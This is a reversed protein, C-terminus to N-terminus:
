IKKTIQTKNLISELKIKYWKNQDLNEDMKKFSLYQNKQINQKIKILNLILFIINTKYHFYHM